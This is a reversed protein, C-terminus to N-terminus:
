KQSHPFHFYYLTKPPSTTCSFRLNNLMFSSGSHEADSLPLFHGSYALKGFVSNTHMFVESFHNDNRKSCKFRRGQEEFLLTRQIKLINDTQNELSLGPDKFDECGKLKQGNFLGSLHSRRTGVILVLHTRAGAYLLPTYDKKPRHTNKNNWEGYLKLCITFEVENRYNRGGNQM